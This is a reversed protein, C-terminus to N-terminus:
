LDHAAPSHNVFEQTRGVDMHNIVRYVMSVQPRNRLYDQM